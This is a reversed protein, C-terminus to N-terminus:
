TRQRVGKERRKTSVMRTTPEKKGENLKKKKGQCSIRKMANRRTNTM